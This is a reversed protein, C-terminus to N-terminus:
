KREPSHNEAMSLMLIGSTIGPPVFLHIWRIRRVDPQVVASQVRAICLSRVSLWPSVSGQEFSVNQPLLVPLQEDPVLQEGCKECYVIPIPAGWYRQRSILWDRLRYNVKVKADGLKKEVMWDIIAKRADDSNMGNFQASNVMVGTEVYAETMNNEDIPSDPNDVTLILELNYKKAFLFDRQDGTPVGMVAGTGYDYLVYNTM